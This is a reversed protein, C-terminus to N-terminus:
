HEIDQLIKNREKLRVNEEGQTKYYEVKGELEDKLM